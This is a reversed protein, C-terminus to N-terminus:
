VEGKAVEEYCDPCKKEPLVGLGLQTMPIPAAAPKALDFVRLAPVELWTEGDVSQRKCTPCKVLNKKMHQFFTQMGEM